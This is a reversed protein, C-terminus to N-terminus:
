FTYFPERLTMAYHKDQFHSSTPTMKEAALRKQRFVVRHHLWMASATTAQHKAEKEAHDDKKFEM